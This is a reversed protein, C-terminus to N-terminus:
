EDDQDDDNRRALQDYTSLDATRAPQAKARPDETVPVSLPPPQAQKHRQQDLLQRVAGLHPTDMAVAQRLAADLAEAGFADLHKLLKAVTFGLNGGREALKCLFPKSAPSVHHLQDTGRHQRARQKYETLGQLHARDETQKGIGWCRTHTALCQAGDLVRVSDLSAVVSLTRRVHTHPISYDNSDFRVYPTKGVRVDVREDAPFPNEPLALLRPQEESFVEAVTRRNDEPCKRQDSVEVLWHALQQNLDELDRFSRAAFFSTRLYRIAREVRGKENGRAVNCPKPEFRYHACLELHTPHMRIASGVRELVASKLNDYMNIRAVGGFYDYAEVHGRLFAAMASSLYFRAFIKRSFSLVMVFVYLKRKGGDVAVLGFHAWDVQAQEGPLTRLRAYAETTPRPRYRAVISRFHDEAGPYGREKVMHYVRSACVLPYKHLTEKIFPVYPDAICARVARERVLVGDDRLVRVVVSHHIGLQFAITGPPWKEVHALRLIEAEKDRPIM